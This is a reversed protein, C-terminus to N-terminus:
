IKRPPESDELQTCQDSLIYKFHVKSMAHYSLKFLGTFERFMAEPTAKRCASAIQHSPSFGGLYGRRSANSLRQTGGRIGQGPFFLPRLASGPALHHLGGAPSQPLARSGLGLAPPPGKLPELTSFPLQWEPDGQGLGAAEKLPLGWVTQSGPLQLGERAMECCVLSQM